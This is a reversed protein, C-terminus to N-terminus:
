PVHASATAIMTREIVQVCCAVFSHRKVTRIAVYVTKGERPQHWEGFVQAPLWEEKSEKRLNRKIVFDVKHKKLTELTDEADNGSDLRALLKSNTMVRAAAIAREIFEPTDKQCHQSGERFEEM